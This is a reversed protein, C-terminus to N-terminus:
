DAKVVALLRKEELAMEREAEASQEHDWGLLHLLGHILLRFVAEEATEGSADAEHVARDASIAVDGVM